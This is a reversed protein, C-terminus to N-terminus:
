SAGISRLIRPKVLWRRQGPMSPGDPLHVLAAGGKKFAFRDDGHHMGLPRALLGSLTPEHGVPAITADPRYKKLATGARRRRGPRARARCAPHDAQLRDGRHRRHRPRPDAPEHAAADDRAGM